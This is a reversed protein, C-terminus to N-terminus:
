VKSSFLNHAKPYVCVLSRRPLMLSAAPALRGKEWGACLSANQIEIPCLFQSRLPAETVEPQTIRLRIICVVTMVHVNTTTGVSVARPLTAWLELRVLFCFLFGWVLLIVHLKKFFSSTCTLNDVCISLCMLVRRRHGRTIPDTHLYVNGGTFDFRLTNKQESAPPSLARSRALRVRGPLLLTASSILCCLLQTAILGDAFVGGRQNTRSNVSGESHQATVRSPKQGSLDVSLCVPFWELCHFHWKSRSWFYGKQLTRSPEGHFRCFCPMKTELLGTIRATKLDKNKM